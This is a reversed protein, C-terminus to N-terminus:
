ILAELIQIFVFKEENLIVEDDDSSAPNDKVPTPVESADGGGRHRIEPKDTM